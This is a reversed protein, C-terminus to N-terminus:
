FLTPGIKAWFIQKKRKKIQALVPLGLRAWGLQDSDAWFPNSQYRGLSNPREKKLQAPGLETM